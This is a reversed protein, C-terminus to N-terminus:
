RDADEDTNEVVEWGQPWETSEKGISSMAWDYAESWGKLQEQIMANIDETM